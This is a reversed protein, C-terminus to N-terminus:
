KDTNYIELKEQRFLKKANPKSINTFFSVFNYWWHVNLKGKM